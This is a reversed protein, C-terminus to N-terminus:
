AKPTVASDSRAGNMNRKLEIIGLFSRLVCLFAFSFYGVSGASEITTKRKIFRVAAAAM